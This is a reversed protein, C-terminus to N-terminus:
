SQVANEHSAPPSLLEEVEPGGKFLWRALLAFGVMRTAVFSLTILYYHRWYQVATSAGPEQNIYRLFSHVSAPLYSAEALAWVTLLLALTRSALVVADKRSM